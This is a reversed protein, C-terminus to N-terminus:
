GTVSENSQRGGRPRIALSHRIDKKFLVRLIQWGLYAPILYGKVKLQGYVAREELLPQADVHVNRGTWWEASIGYIFATQYPDGTGFTLRGRGSRPRIHRLVSILITLLYRSSNQVSKSQLWELYAEGLATKEMIQKYIDRLKQIWSLLKQRLKQIWGPSDKKESNSDSESVDVLKPRVDAGTLESAQKVAENEEFLTPQDGPWEPPREDKARLPEVAAEDAPKLTWVRLGFLRIIVQLNGDYGATASLFGGWVKIVVKIVSAAYPQDKERCIRVQWLIPVLLLLLLLCLIILLIIGVVKLLIVLIGLVMQLAEM